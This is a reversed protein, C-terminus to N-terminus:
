RCRRRPRDRRRHGPHDGVEARRDGGVAPREAGEAPRLVADRAAADGTIERNATDALMDVYFMAQYKDDAQGAKWALDSLQSSSARRPRASGRATYQQVLERIDSYWAPDRTFDQPIYGAAGNALTTAVVQDVYCQVTPYLTALQADTLPVSSGDLWCFGPGSNTGSNVRLPADQQSLRIGGQAIGLSDRM